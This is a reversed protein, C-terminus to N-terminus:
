CIVPHPSKKSSHTSVSKAPPMHAIVAPKSNSRVSRPSWDLCMHFMAGPEVMGTSGLTLPVKQGVIGILGTLM